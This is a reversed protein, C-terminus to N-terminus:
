DSFSTGKAKNIRDEAISFYKSDVEIGVFNRKTNVEYSMGRFLETILKEGLMGKSKNNLWVYGQLPTNKWPDFINISM